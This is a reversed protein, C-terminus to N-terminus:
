LGMLEYLGSVEVNKRFHDALININKNLDYATIEDIPHLSKKFRIKNLYWRRFRDCDFIGHLYTGWVTGEQNGHGLIQGTPNKLISLIERLKETRGHHIEYGSVSIGSEIHIATSQGLFKDSEMTTEIPLLGLGEVCPQQSEIGEPDLIREGLMQYGGCIGVIHTNGQQALEVIRQALGNEKIHALDMAVNKSGALIILDPQGLDSANKVQRVRVDKEVKLADVDTFNSIRPTDILAVDLRNGLPTTDNLLELKFELSDEEPLALNKLYPVVGYVHRKSNNELYDLGDELLSLDGRFRNIIFGKVLKREWEFLTELSGIYSGFVGGQDINGILIVNANAYQAMRMNVLDNHKLNVESVSGAGELVLCDYEEALSDYSKKVEEFAEPKYKSYSKFTMHSVPKGHIIVQSDFENSPKLLIPNMRVDPIVNAAQAQLAQARGIEGGEPTVFSNLAMNQAKFPAVRFGDQSMVRCLATTLISKGVNSGTGLLM